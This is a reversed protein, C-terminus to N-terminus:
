KWESWKMGDWVWPSHPADDVNKKDLIRVMSWIIDDNISVNDVVDGDKDLIVCFENPMNNM